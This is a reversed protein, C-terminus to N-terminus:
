NRYPDVALGAKFISQDLSFETQIENLSTQGEHILRRLSAKACTIEESTCAWFKWTVPASPASPDVVLASISVQPFEPNSAELAAQELLIEPTDSRIALIRLDKLLWAEDFDPTCSLQFIVMLVGFHSLFHNFMSNM